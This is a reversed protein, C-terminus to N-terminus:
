QVTVINKPSATPQTMVLAWHNWCNLFPCHRPQPYSRVPLVDPVHGSHPPLAHEELTVAPM